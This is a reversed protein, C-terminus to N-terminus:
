FAEPVDEGIAFSVIRFGMTMRGTVDMRIHVHTTSPPLAAGVESRGVANVHSSVGLLVVGTNLFEVIFTSSAQAVVNTIDAVFRVDCPALSLAVTNEVTRNNYQQASTTFHTTM